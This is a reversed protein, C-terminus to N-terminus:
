TKSSVQSMNGLCYRVLQPSKTSSFLLVCARPPAHVTPPNGKCDYYLDLPLGEGAFRMYDTDFCSLVRLVPASSLVYSFGITRSRLALLDADVPLVIDEPRLPPPGGVVFGSVGLARALVHAKEAAVSYIGKEESVHEVSYRPVPKHPFVFRPVRKHLIVGRENDCSTSNM